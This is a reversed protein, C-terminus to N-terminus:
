FISLLHKELSNIRKITNKTLNTSFHGFIAFELCHRPDKAVAFLGRATTFSGWAAALGLLLIKGDEPEGRRLKFGSNLAHFHQTKTENQKEM